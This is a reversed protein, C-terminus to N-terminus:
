GILLGERCVKGINYHRSTQYRQDVIADGTPPVVFTAHFHANWGFTCGVVNCWLPQNVLNEVAATVCHSLRIQWILYATRRGIYCRAVNLFPPFRSPQLYNKRWR